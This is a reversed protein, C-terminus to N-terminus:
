FYLPPLGLTSYQLLEAWPNSGSWAATPCASLRSRWSLAPPALTPQSCSSTVHATVCAAGPAPVWACVGPHGSLCRVTWRHRQFLPAFSFYWSFFYVVSLGSERQCCSVLSEGVSSTQYSTIPCRPRAAPLDARDLLESAPLPHFSEWAPTTSPTPQTTQCRLRSRCLLCLYDSSGASRFGLRLFPGRYLVCISLSSLHGTVYCPVNQWVFWKLGPM